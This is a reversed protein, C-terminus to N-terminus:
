KEPVHDLISPPIYGNFVVAELHESRSGPNAVASISDGYVTVGLKINGGVGTWMLLIEGDEDVTIRPLARNSPLVKVFDQAAVLTNIGIGAYGYETAVLPLTWIVKILVSKNYDSSGEMISSNSSYTNYDRYDASFASANM